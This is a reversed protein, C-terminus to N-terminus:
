QECGAKRNVFNAVRKAKIVGVMKGANEFAEVAERGVMISVQVHPSM